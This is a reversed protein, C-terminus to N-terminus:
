SLIIEIGYFFSHSNRSIKGNCMNVETALSECAYTTWLLEIWTSLSIVLTIFNQWVILENNEHSNLLNVIGIYQYFCRIMLGALQVAIYFLLQIDFISNFAKTIESLKFHLKALKDLQDSLQCYRVVNISRHNTTKISVIKLLNKNLQEFVINLFSVGCYFINEYLRVAMVPTYLILPLYPHAILVNSSRNLNYWVILLNFLDFITTKIFLKVFYKKFDVTQDPFSKVLEIVEVCQFYVSKAIGFKFHQGVYLSTYSFIVIVSHFDILFNFIKSKIFNSSVARSLVVVGFSFYIYLLILPLVISYIFKFLNYKIRHTTIDINYPWFGFLRIVVNIVALINNLVKIQKKNSM